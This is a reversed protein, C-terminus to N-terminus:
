FEICVPTEIKYDQGTFTLLGTNPDISYTTINSTNQNAAYLFKGQADIKFNRPFEGRTSEQGLSTLLGTAQDVKFQAISNHGRNSGYLFQGSPHLHIDACFNSESYGEPLTSLSQISLLQNKDKEYQIVNVTNDLENIVYCCSGDKSWVLHRPGAGKQLEVFGQEHPVLQGNAVDLQFIWVKDKGKDAILAISNDPSLKVAHLNSEQEPTAKGEAQLDIKQTAELSGDTKRRYMKAIGGVYNAVFVFAETQDFAVHCPALGDTPLRNLLQLSDATIKYAYIFGTPEGEQALESVAYLFQEDSSIVLFSPNILQAVTIKESWTGQEGNLTLRYIGDAKGDVHGEKRTYTGIYAYTTVNEPVIVEETTSSDTNSKEECSFCSISLIILCLLQLAFRSFTAPSCQQM